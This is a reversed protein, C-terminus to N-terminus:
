EAANRFTPLPERRPPQSMRRRYNRIAEEVEEESESGDLAGFERLERYERSASADSAGVTEHPAAIARRYRDVLDQIEDVSETGDLWSHALLETYAEQRSPIGATEARPDGLFEMMRRDRLQERVEHISPERAAEQVVRPHRPNTPLDETGLDEIGEDLTDELDETAQVFTEEDEVTRLTTPADESGMDPDDVPPPLREQKTLADRMGLDVPPNPRRDPLSALEQRKEELKNEVGALEAATRELLDLDHAANGNLQSRGRLSLYARHLYERETETAEEMRRVIAEQYAADQLHSERKPFLKMGLAFDSAVDLGSLLDRQKRELSSIEKWLRGKELDETTEIVANEELIERGTEPDWRRRLIDARYEPTTRMKQDLPPKRERDAFGELEMIYAQHYAADYLRRQEDVSATRGAMRAGREEEALIREAEAVAKAEIRSVAQPSLGKAVIRANRMAARDREMRQYTEARREETRPSGEAIARFSQAFAAVKDIARRRIFLVAADGSLGNRQAEAAADRIFGDTMEQWRGAQANRSTELYSKAVAYVDGYPSTERSPSPADLEDEGYFRPFDKKTGPASSTHRPARESPM